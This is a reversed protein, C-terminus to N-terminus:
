VGILESLTSLDTIYLKDDMWEIEAVNDDIVSKIYDLPLNINKSIYKSDITTTNFEVNMSNLSSQLVLVFTNRLRQSGDDVFLAPYRRKSTAEDKIKAWVTAKFVINHNPSTHTKCEGLWEDSIVDGPFCAASGSGAVVDWGLCTAVLNEQRNSYIKNNTKM